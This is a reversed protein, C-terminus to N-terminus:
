LEETEKKEDEPVCWDWWRNPHWAIAMSEEKIKGKQTKRKKFWIIWIFWINNYHDGMIKLQQKAILWDPDHELFIPDGVRVVKDCMEQTKLHDHVYRLTYPERCVAENCM